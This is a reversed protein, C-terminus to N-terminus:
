YSAVLGAVELASGWALSWGETGHGYAHVIRSGARRSEKEIRVDDRRMPRIGQAIPYEPELKADKLQPLIRECKARMEVMAPSNETLSNETEGEETFTGLILTNENRPVVFVINYDMHDKNNVVLAHEIKPFTKGDNVVRLLGGRGAYLSTDSATTQADLGTANVIVDANYQQLLEQEHSLFDGKVEGTALQAGKAKVLNLIFKIAQDSDIIPTQYEFTDVVVGGSLNYAEILSKDHRFGPIRAQEIAEVREREVEDEAIAYPAGCLIKRVRVGFDPALETDQALQLYVDYSQLAYERLRALNDPKLRPGCPATPFEWMAGAIQSTLRQEKTFTPWEKSLITVKYGRDLLLWASTLGTVGAGVVLVHHSTSSPPKAPESKTTIDKGLTLPSKSIFEPM